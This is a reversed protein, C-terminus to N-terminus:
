NYKQTVVCIIFFYKSDLESSKSVDSNYHTVRQEGFEHNLEDIPSVENDDIERDGIMVIKQQIKM